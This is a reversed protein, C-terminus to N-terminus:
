VVPAPRRNACIAVAACALLVILAAEGVGAVWAGADILMGTWRDWDGHPAFLRALTPPCEPAALTPLATACSALVAVLGCIAAATSVIIVGGLWECWQPVLIRGATWAAPPAVTLANAPSVLTANASM